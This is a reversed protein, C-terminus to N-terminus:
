PVCAAPELALTVPDRPRALCPASAAGSTRCLGDVEVAGAPCPPPACLQRELAEELSAQLRARVLGRGAEAVLARVQPAVSGTLCEVTANALAVADVEATAVLAGAGDVAFSVRVPLLAYGQAAGPCAGNGVVAIAGGGITGATQTVLTALNALRFPVVAAVTGGGATPKFAAGSAGPLDVQGVCTPPDTAPDAGEPCFTHSTRPIVSGSASPMTFTAATAGDLGAGLLVGAMPALYAAGCVGAQCSEATCANGDDCDAATLCGGPVGEPGPTAGSCGLAGLLAALAM